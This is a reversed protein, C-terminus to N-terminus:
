ENATPFFWFPEHFSYNPDSNYGPDSIYITWAWTTGPFFPMVALSIEEGTIFGADRADISFAQGWPGAGFVWSGVADGDPDGNNIWTFTIVEPEVVAANVPSILTLPYPPLNEPDILHYHFGM